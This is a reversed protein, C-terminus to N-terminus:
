RTEDSISRASATESVGLSDVGVASLIKTPERTTVTVTVTRGNITVTGHAGVGTLFAHAAAAAAQPNVTDTGDRLGGQNLADAGARAAQEAQQQCTRKAAMAYGGDIVLGAVAVMAMAVFVFFVAAVGAQDRPRRSTM